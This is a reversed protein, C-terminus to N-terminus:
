NAEYPIGADTLLKELYAIRRERADRLAESKTKARALTSRADANVEASAKNTYTGLVICSPVEIVQWPEKCMKCFASPMAGHHPCPVEKVIYM